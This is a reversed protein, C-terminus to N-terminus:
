HQTQSNASIGEDRATNPKLYDYIQLSFAGATQDIKLFSLFKGHTPAYENFWPVWVRCMKHTLIRMWVHWMESSKSFPFFRLHM